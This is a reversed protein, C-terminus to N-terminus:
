PNWPLKVQPYRVKRWCSTWKNSFIRASFLLHMEKKKWRHTFLTENLSFHVSTCATGGSAFTNLEKKHASSRASLRWEWALAGKPKNGFFYTEKKHTHTEEAPNRQFKDVLCHLLFHPIFNSPRKRQQKNATDLISLNCRKQATLSSDPWASGPALFMVQLPLTLNSVGANPSSFGMQQSRLPWRDKTCLFIQTKIRSYFWNGKILPVFAFSVVNILKCKFLRHSTKVLRKWTKQTWM